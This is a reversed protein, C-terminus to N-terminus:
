EVIVQLVIFCALFLFVLFYIKRCGQFVVGGIAKDCLQILTNKNEDMSFM